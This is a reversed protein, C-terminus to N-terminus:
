LQPDVATMKIKDTDYETRCNPCRAPLADKLSQQQLSNFCWLCPQFGCNCYQVALDTGDMKECCIACTAEM